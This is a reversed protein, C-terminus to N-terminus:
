GENDGAMLLIGILVQYKHMGFKKPDTRLLLFFTFTKELTLLSQGIM